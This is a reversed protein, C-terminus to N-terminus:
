ILNWKRLVERMGDMEAESLENVMPPRVYGGRLGVMDMMRKMHVINGANQKQGGSWWFDYLLMEEEHYRIAEDWNGSEVAKWLRVQLPANVSSIFSIFGNAGLIRGMPQHSSSATFLLLEKSITGCHVFNMLSGTAQKVAFVNKLGAIRRLFPVTLDRGAVAPNNYVMIPMDVHDNVYKYFSFIQEDDYPIYHPPTLLMAAAGAEKSANALEIINVISNDNVGALVPVDDAEACVTRIVGKRVELSMASCEGMTGGVVLFGNEKTIGRKKMERVNHRIADYDVALEQTFPTLVLAGVGHFMQKQEQTYM